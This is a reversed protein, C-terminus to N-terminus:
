ATPATWHNLLAFVEPHEKGNYTKVTGDKFRVEAQSAGEGTFNVEAIEDIDIQDVYVDYLSDDM